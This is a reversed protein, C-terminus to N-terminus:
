VDVWAPVEKLTHLTSRPARISKLVESWKKAQQV